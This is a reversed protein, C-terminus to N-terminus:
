RGIKSCIHSVSSSPLNVAMTGWLQEAPEVLVRQQSLAGGNNISNWPKGHGHPYGRFPHNITSFGLFNSSSQPERFKPFGGNFWKTKTLDVTTFDWWAATSIELRIGPVWSLSLSTMELSKPSANWGWSALKLHTYAFIRWRFNVAGSM